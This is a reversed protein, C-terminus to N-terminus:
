QFSLDWCPFNSVELMFWQGPIDILVRKMTVASAREREAGEVHKDLDNYIDYVAGRVANLPSLHFYVAHSLSKLIKHSM